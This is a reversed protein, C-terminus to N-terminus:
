GVWARRKSALRESAKQIQSAGLNETELNFGDDIRNRNALHAVFWDEDQALSNAIEPQLSTAAYVRDNPNDSLSLDQYDSYTRILGYQEDYAYNLSASNDDFDFSSAATLNFAQNRNQNTYLGLADHLRGDRDIKM